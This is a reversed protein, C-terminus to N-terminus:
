SDLQVGMRVKMGVFQVYNSLDKGSLPYQLLVAYPSVIAIREDRADRALPALPPGAPKYRERLYVSQLAFGGVVVLLGTAAVAAGAAV